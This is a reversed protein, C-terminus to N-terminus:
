TTEINYTAVRVSEPEEAWGFGVVVSLCLSVFHLRLSLGLYKRVIRGSGMTISDLTFNVAICDRRTKM